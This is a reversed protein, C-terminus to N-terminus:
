SFFSSFTDGINFNYKKLRDLIKEDPYDEDNLGYEDRFQKIEKQYTNNNGKLNEINNKKKSDNKNINQPKKYIENNINYNEIKNKPIINEKIENKIKNQSENYNKNQYLNKNEEPQENKIDNKNDIKEKISIHIAITEGYKKGNIEFILGAIYNGVPYLKLNDFDIKYNKEEGPKQPALIIDEGIINKNQDFVLQAKDLPWLNKGTNKITIEIKPDDGDEEIQAHLKQKNLCDFSYQKDDPQSNMLNKDNNNNNDVINNKNNKQNDIKNLNIENNIINTNFNNIEKIQNKEIIHNSENKRIKIFSHPHEETQCNKEECEECLDYNNCISCKYRFGVIPNKLCKACKIGYHITNCKNKNIQSQLMLNSIQLIKQNFEEQYKKELDDKLKNLTKNANKIKENCLKKCQNEVKAKYIKLKKKLEDNQALLSIQSKNLETKYSEIQNELKNITKEKKQNDQELSNYKDKLSLYNNELTKYKSEIYKKEQFLQNKEKQEKQLMEKVIKLEKELNNLNDEKSSKSLDKRKLEKKRLDEILNIENEIENEEENSKDVEIYNCELKRLVPNQKVNNNYINENEKIKDSDNLNNCQTNNKNEQNDDIVLILQGKKIMQMVESFNNEEIFYEKKNFFYKFKIKKFSDEKFKKFFNIKLEEFSSPINIEEKKDKYSLIVYDSKESM